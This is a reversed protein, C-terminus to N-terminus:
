VGQPRLPQGNEGGGSKPSKTEESVKGVKIMISEKRNYRCRWPVTTALCVHESLPDNDVAKKPLSLCSWRSQSVRSM